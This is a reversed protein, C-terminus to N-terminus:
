CKCNQTENPVKINLVEDRNIDKVKEVRARYIKTETTLSSLSQAKLIIKEYKAFLTDRVKAMPEILFFDTM